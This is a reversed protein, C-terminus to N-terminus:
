PNAYLNNKATRYTVALELLAGVYDSPDESYAPSAQQVTINECLGSLTLSSLALTHLSALLRNAATGKEVPATYADLTIVRVTMVHLTSDWEASVTEGEDYLATLRTTTYDLTDPNRTASLLTALAALIRERIPETPPAAM